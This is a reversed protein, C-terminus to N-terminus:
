TEAYSNRLYAFSLDAFHEKSLLRSVGSEDKRKVRAHDEVQTM